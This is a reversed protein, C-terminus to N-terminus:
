DASMDNYKEDYLAIKPMEGINQQKVILNVAYDTAINWRRFNRDDLRDLHNLVLHMVEHAVIFLIEKDTKGAVFETNFYMFRGDVAMTPIEISEKLQMRTAIAGFFPHKFMLHTRALVIREKSMIYNRKSLTNYVLKM